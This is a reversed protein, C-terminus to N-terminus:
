DSDAWAVRIRTPDARPGGAPGIHHVTVAKFIVRLAERRQPMTWKQWVDEPDELLRPDMRPPDQDAQLHRLREAIAVLRPRTSSATLLGEAVLDALEDRRLRLSAVETEAASRDHRPRFLNMADAMRLRGLVLATVVDDATTRKISIHCQGPLGATYTAAHAASGGVCTHGHQECTLLGGLLTLAERPRRAEGKPRRRLAAGAARWDEPSLVGEFAARRPGSESQVMGGLAPSSMLRKLGTHTWAQGRRPRVGRRNLDLAIATLAEGRLVRQFIEEVVRGQADDVEPLGAKASPRMGYPIPGRWLGREKAQQHARSVREGTRESEARSVAGLMRAVLRGHSTSVDWAGAKITEVVTATREILELFDELERPSRHLREPAWAVVIKVDDAAIDRLLRQYAPRTRGTFASVDNDVYRRIPGWGRRRCLAECDQQQREVGLGEGVEDRSIRAYVAVTVDHFICSLRGNTQIFSGPRTKTARRPRLSSM